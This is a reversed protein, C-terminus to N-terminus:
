KIREAIKPEFKQVQQREQDNASLRQIRRLRAKEAATVQGRSAALSYM